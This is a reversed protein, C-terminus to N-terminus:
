NGMKEFVNELLNEIGNEIENLYQKKMWEKNM